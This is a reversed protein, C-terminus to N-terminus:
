YILNASPHGSNAITSIDNLGSVAVIPGYANGSGLVFAGSVHETSCNSLFLNKMSSISSFGINCSWAGCEEVLTRTGLAAFGTGPTSYADCDYAQGRNGLYFAGSAAGISVLDWLIFLSATQFDFGRDWGVATGDYVTVNQKDSRIASQAGSGGILHFGCLDLDVNDAGIYIGHKGSESPINQTLYYSGSASIIYSYQPSGPLSQVPIRPEAFGVTTRAVKDAIEQVSKGTPGIEGPPPNLNGARAKGTLLSGAMVGGLGALLARRDANMNKTM